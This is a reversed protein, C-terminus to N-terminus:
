KVKGGAAVWLCFGVAVALMPMVWLSYLLGFNDNAKAKHFGYVGVAAFAVACILFAINM